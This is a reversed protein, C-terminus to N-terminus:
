RLLEGLAFVVVVLQGEALEEVAMGGMGATIIIITMMTIIVM